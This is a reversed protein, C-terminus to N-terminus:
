GSVNRQLRERGKSPKAQSGQPFRKQVQSPAAGLTIWTKKPVLGSANQEQPFTRELSLWILCLYPVNVGKSTQVSEWATKVNNWDIVSCGTYEKLSCDTSCHQGINVGKSIAVSRCATAPNRQSHWPFYASFTTPPATMLNRKLTKFRVMLNAQKHKEASTRKFQTSNRGTSRSWM